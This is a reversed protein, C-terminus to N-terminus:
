KRNLNKEFSVGVILNLIYNIIIFIFSEFITVDFSLLLLFNIYIFIGYLLTNSYKFFICSSSLLFFPYIGTSPNLVLCAVFSIYLGLFMFMSSKNFLIGFLFVLCIISLLWCGTQTFASWIDIKKEFLSVFINMILIGFSFIFFVINLKKM